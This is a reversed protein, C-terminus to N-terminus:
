EDEWVIEIKNISREIFSCKVSDTYQELADAIAGLRDPRDSEFVLSHWNKNKGWLYEITIVWM